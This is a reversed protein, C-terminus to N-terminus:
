FYAYIIEQFIDQYLCICVGSIYGSILMHLRRFYIRIYAYAFEQFIDQYSCIYNGSLLFLVQFFVHPNLLKIKHCLSLEDIFFFTSLLLYIFIVVVVDVDIFLLLQLVM